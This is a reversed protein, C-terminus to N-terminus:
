PDYARIAMEVTNLIGQDYTGDKILETAAQKISMNIPAQNHTTGVILNAKTIM